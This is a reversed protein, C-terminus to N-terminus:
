KSETPSKDKGMVAPEGDVIEVLDILPIESPESDGAPKKRSAKSEAAKPESAARAKRRPPSAGGSILRALATQLADREIPKAVLELKDRKPPRAEADDDLWLVPVPTQQLARLVEPTLQDRDRLAGADLVILDIGQLEGIAAATPAAEVRAEHEPFLALAIAQQLLKHPEIILVKAM